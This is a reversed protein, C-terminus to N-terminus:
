HLNIFPFHFLFIFLLVSRGKRWKRKRGEKLFMASNELGLGKM